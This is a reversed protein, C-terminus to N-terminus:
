TGETDWYNLYARHVDTGEEAWAITASPYADMCQEDAHDMDEAQCLFAQPILSEAPIVYLVVWPKLM